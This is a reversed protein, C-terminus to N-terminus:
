FEALFRELRVLSVPVATGLQQAFLSVRLEEILWRYEEVRRAQLATLTRGKEWAALWQLAQRVQKAREADAPPNTRAREARLQAAKLYRPLHALQHYPTVALVGPPVLRAIDEQLQACMNKSRLGEARTALVAALVDMLRYAIGKAEARAAAAVSAFREQTLPSVDRSCLHRRLCLVAESKVQDIPAFGILALKLKQLDRLDEEAYALEHRLEHELLRALAEGIGRGAEEPTRHLRLAVRGSELRLGAWARVTVGASETVVISEPVDGFCWGGESVREVRQCSARWAAEIETDPRKALERERQEIGERVKQLDRSSAVRKGRDDVVEVRTRLHLPLELAAAEADTLLLGYRATLHV